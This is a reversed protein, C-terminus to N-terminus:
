ISLLTELRSYVRWLRFLRDDKIRRSHSILLKKEDEKIYGKKMLDLFLKYLAEYQDVREKLGLAEQNKKELTLELDRKSQQNEKSKSSKTRLLVLLQKNEEEQKEDRPVAVKKRRLSGNRRRLRDQKTKSGKQANSDEVVNM